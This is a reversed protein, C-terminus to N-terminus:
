FMAIVLPSFLKDIFLQNAISFIFSYKVKYFRILFKQNVDNYYAKIQEKTLHQFDLSPTNQYCWM